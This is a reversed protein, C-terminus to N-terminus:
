AFRVTMDFYYLRPLSTCTFITNDNLVPSKGMISKLFARQVTESKLPELSSQVHRKRDVSTLLIPDGDAWERDVENVDADHNTQILFFARDLKEVYSRPGKAIVQCQSRRVGCITIYGSCVVASDRIMSEASEVSSASSCVDRLLFSMTEKGFYCEKLYSFSGKTSTKRFNYSLAFIDSKMATLLGVCGLFTVGQYVPVGNRYFAVRIALRKLFPMDWDLTRMLIPGDSTMAIVSTCRALYDLATNFFVLDKYSIGFKGTTKAIGRLEETYEVPLPKLHCLPGILVPYLASCKKGLQQRVINRFDRGLERMVDKNKEVIHLWRESPKLDLDIVYLAM